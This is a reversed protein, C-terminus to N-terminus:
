LPPFPTDARFDVLADLARDLDGTNGARTAAMVQSVLSELKAADRVRVEDQTLAM